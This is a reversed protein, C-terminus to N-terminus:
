ATALQRSPSAEVLGFGVGFEIIGEHFRVGPRAAGLTEACNAAAVWSLIEMAGVGATTVVETPDWEDFSALEGGTVLGLVRDDFDLVISYEEPAVGDAAADALMTAAAEHAEIEYDIWAQRPVDSQKTGLLHHPKWDPGVDHIPPFLFAPDHSIGGTGMVLVRDLDLGGVYRGVAQGLARVRSFPVFPPAICNVFVPLVPYRDLGGTFEQLAQSFGHDVELAYSVAVDVGDGRLAGVCGEAIPEPVDLDGAFGGVDALATAATGVCFSPMSSMSQGGYHDTGFMVILEPDFEQVRQRETALAARCARTTDTERGPFYILPSHSACVMMTDM